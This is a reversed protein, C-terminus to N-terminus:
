VAGVFLVMGTLQTEQPQKLSSRPNINSGLNSWCDVVSRILFDLLAVAVRLQRCPLNRLFVFGKLPTARDAIHHQQWGADLM